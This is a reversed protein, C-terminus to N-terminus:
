TIRLLSLLGNKVSKDPIKSTSPTADIHLNLRKKDKRGNKEQSEEGSVDNKSNHKKSHISNNLQFYHKM